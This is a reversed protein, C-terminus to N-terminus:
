FYAGRRRECLNIQIATCHGTLHEYLEQLLENGKSIM